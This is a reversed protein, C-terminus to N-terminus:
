TGEYAVTNHLSVNFGEIQRLFRRSRGHTWDIDRETGIIEDLTCFLPKKQPQVGETSEKVYTIFLHTNSIASMNAEKEGTLAFLCDTTLTVNTGENCKFTVQGSICYYIHNFNNGFASRIDVCTGADLLVAYCTYGVKDEELVLAKGTLGSAGIKVCPEKSAERVKM